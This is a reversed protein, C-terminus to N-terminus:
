LSSKFERIVTYERLYLSEKDPTHKKYESFLKEAKDIDVWQPEMGKFQETETLARECTGTVRCIFYRSIYLTDYCYENVTIFPSIVETTYGAEEALERTVCEENTEGEELSGGPSMYFGTKSEYSLLIKGNDVIIARCSICKRKYPENYTSSYQSITKNPDTKEISNNM